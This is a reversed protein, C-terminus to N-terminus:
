RQLSQHVSIYDIVEQLTKFEGQADFSEDVQIKWGKERSILAYDGERSKNYQMTVEYVVDNKTIKHGFLYENRWDFEYVLPSVEADLKEALGVSFRELDNMIVDKKFYSGTITKASSYEKLYERYQSIKNESEAIERKLKEITANVTKKVANPASEFSEGDRFYMLEDLEPILNDLHAKYSVINSIEIRANGNNQYDSKSINNEEAISRYIEYQAGLRKMDELHSLYVSQIASIGEDLTKITPAMSPSYDRGEHGYVSIHKYGSQDHEIIEGAFVGEYYVEAVVSSKVTFIRDEKEPLPKEGFKYTKTVFKSYAM